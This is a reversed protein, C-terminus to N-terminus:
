IGISNPINQTISSRLCTLLLRHSMISCRTLCLLMRVEDAGYSSVVEFNRPSCTTVVRGKSGVLMKALQLMFLGTGTSGGTVLVKRGRALSRIRYEGAEYDVGLLGAKEAIGICTAGGGSIGSVEELTVNSPKVVVDARPAVVYEALVGNYRWYHKPLIMGFVAQGESLEESARAEGSTVVHGSFEFGPIWPNRNFHPMIAMFSAQPQHLASYSVKVLVEDSRLDASQPQPFDHQLKLVQSLPGREIFTWARM